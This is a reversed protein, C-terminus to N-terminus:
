PGSLAKLTALVRGLEEILRGYAAWDGTRQAELAQSYLDVALAILEERDTPLPTTQPATTADQGITSPANGAGGSTPTTGPVLTTSTTVSPGTTTATSPGTTTTTGADTAEAAPSTSWTTPGDPPSPQVGFMRQLALALTPEMVVRENYSLIVERLEPIPQQEAQLYLPEVYLLSEGIPIVLLNGRIARSGAQNWLALQASITPENSIRAEIQLPGSVPEEKPMEFVLIDGYADGDMRVVMCAAMNTKELPAFPQVLLFEEKTEQANGPLAMIAYYPAVPQEQASYIESPIQWVDEKNYFMQPDDMHYVTLVQAQVACLDKPYRIHQQLDSPLDSAPRFLEPYTKAYTTALADDPDMQYITVSGDYADVTIKVSNRIYNTGDPQPQSYPFRTTTTYADWMWVLSGDQRIVLYPDGDLKLYPVLAEVRERITRRYMLRSEPTLYESVLLKLDGFRLAFALRRWISGVPIGGKGAYSTFASGDQRPYDFEKAKTQVVIFDNGIEGYYIAPETVLLNTITKPPINSVLYEPLGESTTSNVPTVVVGYGHTYSLHENVWTKAQDQLRSQDLERAAIMVQRYRLGVEYRDIDVDQFRYYLRLEQQQTYAELIPEANWLGINNITPRNAEIDEATLNGTLPYSETRVADLGYAFRTADINSVIYPSELRIENPSVRYHQVFAPYIEGAGLWMVFLLAVAALPLRWGRYYINLLFMAASALAILAILRLIPLEVTVDTFGAGFVVGRESYVLEWSTIWFGAAQVVLLVAALVSVHGWANRTVSFRGGQFQIARELGYIALVGLVTCILAASVFGLIRRYLPVTYLFFSADRGFVPDAYGVPTRHLYLLIEEWGSGEALGFFVAIALAGLLCGARIARNRRAGGAATRDLYAPASRSLRRALVVNILFLGVAILGAVGGVAMKGWLRTWFVSSYGVEQYWLLETWFNSFTLLGLILVALAGLVGLLILAWRPRRGREPSPPLPAAADGRGGEGWEAGSSSTLEASAAVEPPTDSSAADSLPVDSPPAAQGARRFAERMANGVTTNPWDNSPKKEGQM